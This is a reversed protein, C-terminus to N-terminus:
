PALLAILEDGRRVVHHQEAVDLLRLDAEVAGVGHEEVVVAVEHYPVGKEDGGSSFAAADKDEVGAQAVHLEIGEACFYLDEGFAHGVNAPGLMIRGTARAHGGAQGHKFRVISCVRGTKSMAASREASDHVGVGGAHLLDAFEFARVGFGDDGAGHVARREDRSIHHEDGRFSFIGDAADQRVRDRWTLVEGHM